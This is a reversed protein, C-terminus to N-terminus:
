SSPSCHRRPATAASSGTRPRSPRSAPPWCRRWRGASRWRRPRRSSTPSCCRTRTEGGDVPRLFGLVDCPVLVTGQHLLQYFAHQGNTGASGWVVAGTAVAVPTGDTRVSKGNSEMELQQLYAPFRQLDHSYPLVAASQAGFFDTYWLGVLGLLVPLNEELPATRLHEDISRYGALLEHFRASGIAVMVSLGIASPLSYRGGV